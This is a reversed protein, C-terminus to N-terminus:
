PLRCSGVRETVGAFAPAWAKRKAEIIYGGGGDYRRSGTDMRKDAGRRVGAEDNRRLCSDMELATHNQRGFGERARRRRGGGRRHSLCYSNLFILPASL